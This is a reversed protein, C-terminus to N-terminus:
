RFAVALFAGLAIAMAGKSVSQEFHLRGPLYAVSVVFAADALLVVGLYALGVPSAWDVLTFLPVASLAIAGAVFGQAARGARALGIRKPLTSRDVDGALDEMDKTVERGLTALFAMAAFPAVAAVAGVAAAGYLFVMATLGGVTVNGVLGQAKFRLEYLLLGAVAVAVIAGVAPEQLAVPVALAAGAAFLGVTLARAGPVSIAGTVLPREPHNVRDGDRDRLDNLVNGGATVLAASGAALGVAIWRGAPFPAHVTVAALAGVVTGVLSVLVNATRVVRVAGLM